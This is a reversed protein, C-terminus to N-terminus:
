TMQIHLTMIDDGQKWRQFSYHFSSMPLHPLWFHAHSLESNERECSHKSIVVLLLVGQAQPKKTAWITFFRGAIHSVWIRDRPWSSGRSFPICGVGTDKGPSDWPHLLRAPWLGHPRSSDSMGLCSATESECTYFLACKTQWHGFFDKM